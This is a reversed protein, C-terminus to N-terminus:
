RIVPKTQKKNEHNYARIYLPVFNLIDFSFTKFHNLVKMRETIKKSINHLPKCLM